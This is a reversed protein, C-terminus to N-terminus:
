PVYWDHPKIEDTTKEAEVEVVIKDRSQCDVNLGCTVFENYYAKKEPNEPLFAFVYYNGVPVELEFGVGNLFGEDSIHDDSCYELETELNKACVVMDEPVIESPYSLPGRIFGFDNSETEKQLPIEEGSEVYVETDNIDDSDTYTSKPEFLSCGSVLVSVAIIQFVHRM